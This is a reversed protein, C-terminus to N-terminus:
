ERAIGNLVWSLSFASGFKLTACLHCLCFAPIFFTTFYKSCIALLHDLTCCVPNLQLEVHVYTKYSCKTQKVPFSLVPLNVNFVSRPHADQSIVPKM